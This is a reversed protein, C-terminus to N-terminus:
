KYKAVKFTSFEKFTEKEVTKNISPLHKVRDTGRQYVSEYM